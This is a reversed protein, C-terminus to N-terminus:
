RPLPNQRAVVEVELGARIGDQLLHALGMPRCRVQAVMLFTAASQLPLLPGTCADAAHSQEDLPSVHRHPYDSGCQRSTAARHDPGALM